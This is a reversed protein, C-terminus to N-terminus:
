GTAATAAEESRRIEEHLRLTSEAVEDIGLGELAAVHSVFVQEAIAREGCSAHARMLAEILAPHTPSTVLGREAAWIATGTDGSEFSLEALRTATETVKLEWTSIWNEIDVWVFSARERSPYTFVPGSVLELAGRLILAAETEPRTAAYTIRREFLDVDTVVNPGVSYAGDMAVPLHQAGLATRCASLTNFLRRRRSQTAATWVADELREISVPSHLSMYAVAATQKPTLPRSGGVVEIDGLLRVLVEFAPDEYPENDGTSPRIAPVVPVAETLRDADELLEVVDGLAKSGVAQGRCTFGLGPLTLEGHDVEIRTAAVPVEGLIVLSATTDGAAVLSAFEEFSPDDPCYTCVIVLPTLGDHDPANGRAVFPSAWRNAALLAQSQRAWALAEEEVEKWTEVVCVGDFKAIEPDGLDGVVTLALPGGVSPNALEVVVSRVFATAEETDGAVALVGEAELDLYAQGSSEPRGLTVLTPACPAVDEAQKPVECSDLVWVAGSAEPTWGQATPLRPESFFVEIREASAQVLRPRSAAGRQEGFHLSLSRMAAHLMAVHHEDSALVLDSRVEALESPPVTPALGPAFQLLRRRRRRTLNRGVGVAIGTAAIGLLGAIIVEAGDNDREGDVGTPQPAASTPAIEQVPAALADAPAALADAVEAGHESPPQDVESAVADDSLGVG